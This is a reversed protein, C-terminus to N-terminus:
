HAESHYRRPGRCCRGLLRVTQRGHGSQLSRGTRFDMMICVNVSAMTLIDTTTNTQKTMGAM